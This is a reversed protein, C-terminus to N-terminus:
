ADEGNIYRKFEERSIRGDHAFDAEAIMEEVTTGVLRVTLMAKLNEPTIYGSNDVDFRDFAQDILDPQMGIRFTLMAALFDTYNVTNSSNCDLTKFIVQIDEDSIKVQNQRLAETVNALTLVGSNDTDMKLFSQRVQAREENSLSWAMMSFCARGM